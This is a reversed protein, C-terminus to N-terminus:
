PRKGSVSRGDWTISHPNLRFIKLVVLISRIPPLIDPHPETTSGRLLTWLLASRPGGEVDLLAVGNGLSQPPCFQLFPGIGISLNYIVLVFLSIVRWLVWPHVHPTDEGVLKEM